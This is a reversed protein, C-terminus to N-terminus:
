TLVPLQSDMSGTRVRVHTHPTRAQLPCTHVCSDYHKYDSKESVTPKGKIIELIKKTQVRQSTLM